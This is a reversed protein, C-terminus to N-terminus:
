VLKYKRAWWYVFTAIVVMFVVIGIFWHLTGTQEGPVTVNMGFLGTVVNLPLLISAMATMKMVVDNTRNSAQTIEISIQALYNSHSRALTKEYHSLNQVMTIVHDQIDGLYLSTESDAPLREGCRKIITRLVEAKTSLLRLMQMVKKRAHGIRRLMDSQESEKLILVLDDISDVELEIFRLLPMFTDTIDDILAYNIWDPTINLGYSKLQEIRKLVNNIHDIPKCHFSLVCERFIVIYVNIPQMFTVSYQNQDFTRICIFSYNIFIECKERTEETQIDETTLPHIGFLKSFTVMETHSPDTVDIWFPGSRLIESIPGGGSPLTLSDLSQGRVIGTKQSYFVFRPSSEEQYLSKKRDKGQPLAQASGLVDGIAEFDLGYGVPSRVCVDDGDYVASEQRTSVSERPTEGVRIEQVSQGLEGKSSKKSKRRTAAQSISPEVTEDTPLRRSRFSSLVGKRQPESLELRPDATVSRALLPRGANLSQTSGTAHSEEDDDFPFPSSVAQPAFWAEELGHSEDGNRIQQETSIRPMRLTETTDDGRQSAENGSGSQPTLLGPGTTLTYELDASFSAAAAANPDTFNFYSARRHATMPSVSSPQRSVDSVPPPTRHSTTPNTSQSRLFPTQDTLTTQEAADPSAAM